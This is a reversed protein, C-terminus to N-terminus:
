DPIISYNKYSIMYNSHEPNKPTSQVVGCLLSHFSREVIHAVTRDVSNGCSSLQSRPSNVSNIHQNNSRNKCSAKQLIYSVAMRHCTICEFEKRMPCGPFSCKNSYNVIVLLSFQLSKETIAKNKSCVSVLLM